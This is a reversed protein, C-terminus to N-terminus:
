GDKFVLLLDAATHEGSERIHAVALEGVEVGILFVNSAEKFSVDSSAALM